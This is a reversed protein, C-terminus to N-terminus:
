DVNTEVETKIDSETIVNQTESEYQKLKASYELMDDMSKFLTFPQKDVIDKISQIQGNFEKSLQKTKYLIKWTELWTHIINEKILEPVDKKLKLWVAVRTFFNINQLEPYESHYIIGTELDVYDAFKIRRSVNLAPNNIDGIHHKTNWMDRDIIMLRIRNSLSMVKKGNIVDNFEEGMMATELLYVDDMSLLHNIVFAWLGIFIPLSIIFYYHEPFFRTQIFYIIVFLGGIQVFLLMQALNMDGLQKKDKYRSYVFLLIVVVYLIWYEKSFNIFDTALSM